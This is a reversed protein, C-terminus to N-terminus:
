YVPRRRKGKTLYQNRASDDSIKKLAARLVTFNRELEIRCHGKGCAMSRLMGCSKSEAILGIQFTRSEIFKDVGNVGLTSFCRDLRERHSKVYHGLTADTELLM